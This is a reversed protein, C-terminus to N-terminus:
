IIKHMREDVLKRSLEVVALNDVYISVIPSDASALPLAGRDLVLSDAGHPLVPIVAATLICQVIWLAWSWRMALGTFVPFVVEDSAVSVMKGDEYIEAVGYYGSPEPFDIGFDRALEDDCFQYFSDSLDIISGAGGWRRCM